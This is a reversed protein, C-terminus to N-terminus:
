AACRWLITQRGDRRERIKKFGERLLIAGLRRQERMPVKAGREDYDILGAGRAAQELTFPGHQTALWPLLADELMDDKRRAAETEHVQEEFMGRPLNARQGEQYRMLAEAWLQERNEEAWREVPAGCRLVIPVFRRNGSQDNPLCERINSTGVIICRRPTSEPDRRYALRVVGDDQRTVFAKLSELEARNAGSMESAEVIVRGQLAEARQKDPAALHLGDAFWEPHESPLILRTLASKGIGQPGILVVMEDLKCGPHYARWIAGLFLHRSAWTVLGSSSDAEFLDSLVHEVRPTGDWSPLGELWEIFPDVESHHLIANLCDTWTERGYRLPREGRDTMYGFKTSIEERIDAVNRDNTPRWTDADDSFEARQSRVNYRFRIGLADFAAKLALADKSPFPEM